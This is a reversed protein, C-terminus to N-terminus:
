IAIQCLFLAVYAAIVAMIAFCSKEARHTSFYHAVQLAACFNLLPIYSLMNRFDICMAAITTLSLLAFVGNIARSRANYAITRLVNLVFSLMTLLATLGVTVLLVLTDHHDIVSLVSVFQPLHIDSPRIIGFGMMIWWPCVMGLIAATLTRGNFIRMQACGILFVPVYLAFCYQTATLFSLGLFILFVHGSPRPNRYCSFLLMLAAGVAVSLLTGTYFQVALGPTAMQMVAFLGIYLWTLSRLVNFVKCLLVMLLTCATMGAIAAAFDALPASFWENASPLALGKDGTLRMPSDSFFYVFAAVLALAAVTLATGRSHLIRTAIAAKM